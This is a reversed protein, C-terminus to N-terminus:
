LSKYNSFYGNIDSPSMVFLMIRYVMFAKSNTNWLLKNVVCCQVLMTNAMMM